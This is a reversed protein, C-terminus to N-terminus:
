LKSKPITDMSMEIAFKMMFIGHELLLFVMWKKAMDGFDFVDTTFILIATNTVAGIYSLIMVITYWVGISNTPM